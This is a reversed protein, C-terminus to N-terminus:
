WVRLRNGRLGSVDKISYKLGVQAPFGGWFTDM